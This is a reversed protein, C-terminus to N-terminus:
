SALVKFIKNIVKNNDMHKFSDVSMIPRILSM